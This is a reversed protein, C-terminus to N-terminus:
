LATHARELELRHAPIDPILNKIFEQIALHVDKVSEPLGWIRFHYHRSRNELDDINSTAVELQDQLEQIRATNQNIRLAAQDSKQEIVEIRSGIKQRDAHISATIQAATHLLGRTLM